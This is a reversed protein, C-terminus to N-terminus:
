CSIEKKDTKKNRGGLINKIFSLAKGTQSNYLWFSDPKHYDADVHIFTSGIGIRKNLGVRILANIIIRRDRNNKVKIDCALGMLHSSNKEGGVKNNHQTTRFGSNIIFPIGAERRAEDLKKIFDENMNDGSGPLDPSDFEDRKFYKITSWDLPM